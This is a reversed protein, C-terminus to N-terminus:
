RRCAPRVARRRHHRGGVCPAHRPWCGPRDTCRARRRAGPAPVSELFGNEGTARAHPGPAAFRPTISDEGLCGVLAENHAVSEAYVGGILLACFLQNMLEVARHQQAMDGRMPLAFAGDRSVLAAIGAAALTAVPEPLRDGAYTNDNIQDLPASFDEGDKLVWTYPALFSHWAPDYSPVSSVPPEYGQPAQDKHVWGGEFWVHDESPKPIITTSLTRPISRYGLKFPDVGDDFAHIQGTETDQFHQM